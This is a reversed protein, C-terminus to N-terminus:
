VEVLINLLKSKVLCKAYLVLITTCGHLREEELHEKVSAPKIAKDLITGTQHKILGPTSAQPGYPYRTWELKAETTTDLLVIGGGSGSNGARLNSRAQISLLRRRIGERSAAM